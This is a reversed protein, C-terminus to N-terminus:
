YFTQFAGFCVLNHYQFQLKIRGSNLATNNQKMM